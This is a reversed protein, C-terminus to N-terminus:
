KEDDIRVNNTADIVVSADNPISKLTKLMAAKNLFTVNESLRLVIPEGAKQDEPKWFYPTRFNNYLIIFIAITLGISIGWLM